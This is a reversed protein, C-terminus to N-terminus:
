TYVRFTTAGIKRGNATFNTSSSADVQFSRHNNIIGFSIGYATRRLVVYPTASCGRLARNVSSEPNMSSLHGLIPKTGKEKGTSLGLGQDRGACPAVVLIAFINEMLHLSSDGAPKVSSNKAHKHSKANAADPIRPEVESKGHMVDRGYRVIVLQM